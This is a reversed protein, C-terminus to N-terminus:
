CILTDDNFPDGFWAAGFCWWFNVFLPMNKEKAKRVSLTPRTFLLCICILESRWWLCLLSPMSVCQALSVLSMQWFTNKKKEKEKILLIENKISVASTHVGRLHFFRNRQLRPFKRKPKHLMMLGRSSSKLSVSPLGEGPVTQMNGSNEGCKLFCPLKVFFDTFPCICGEM